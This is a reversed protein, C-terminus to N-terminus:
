LRLDTKLVNVSRKNTTRLDEKKSTSYDDDNDEYKSNNCNSNNNRNRSTRFIAM